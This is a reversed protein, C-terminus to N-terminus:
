GMPRVVMYLYYLGLLAIISLGLAISSIWKLETIQKATVEPERQPVRVPTAGFFAVRSEVPVPQEDEATLAEYKALLEEYEARSVGDKTPPPIPRKTPVRGPPVQALRVDEM